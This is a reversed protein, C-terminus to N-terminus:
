IEVYEGAQLYFIELASWQFDKDASAHEVKFKFTHATARFYFDASKTTEDGTGLIRTEPYWTTGGDTSYSISVVTSASLDKYHLRAGFVEKFEDKVQMDQDAFDTNKTAFTSSIPVGADGLFDDGHQYVNGSADIIYNAFNTRITQSDLLYDTFTITETFTDVYTGVESLTATFSITDEFIDGTTLVEALSDTFTITDTFTDSGCFATAEDSWDSVEEPEITEGRVRVTYTTNITVTDITYTTADGELEVDTWAGGTHYQFRIENYTDGNTWQAIIDLGDQSATAIINFPATLAM